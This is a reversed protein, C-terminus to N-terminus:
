DYALHHREFPRTLILYDTGNGSSSTAAIWNIGAVVVEIDSSGSLRCERM